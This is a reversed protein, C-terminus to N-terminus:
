EAAATIRVVRSTEADIYVYGRQATKVHEENRASTGSTIQYDSNAAAIFFTFVHTPRGRLTKWHDWERNTRSKLAFVAALMSGFEGETIAGGMQEYSLGT